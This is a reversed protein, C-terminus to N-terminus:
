SRLIPNPYQPNPYHKSVLMSNEVIHLISVFISRKSWLVMCVEDAQIQKQKLVGNPLAMLELIEM